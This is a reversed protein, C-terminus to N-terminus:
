KMDFLKELDVLILPERKAYEEVEHTFGSKSFLMYYSQEINPILKSKRVLDTYVDVGVKKNLWKCEGFIAQKESIALIDLEEEMHTAPNGGWWRGIQDFVFPLCQKKNMRKMYQICIKEFIHGMYNSMKPLIKQEYVYDGMGNEINTYNAPIFHYWFLYMEDCIRYVANRQRENLLPVEKELIHLDILSSIYKSVKRNDEQCKQAIDNLRTAGQAIVTIIANYVAPERLEQKMLNSPEEFLAGTRRLYIQKIAEDITDYNAIYNLYLPIGGSIGYAILQDELPYNNVFSASDLYDFPKIKYQENRRGYLPSQYGLVQQEMFRMSSGCLILLINTQKMVTDIMKQFISTISPNVNALYPFEDIFLVLKEDKAQDCIYQLAKEWDSFVEIYGKAAPYCDLIAETFMKLNMSDSQEISTYTISKIQEKQIFNMILSSKGVRRRGYVVAFHFGNTQYLSQLSTLETERGHFKFDFFFFM